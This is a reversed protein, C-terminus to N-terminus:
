LQQQLRQQRIKKAAIRQTCSNNGSALGAAITCGPLLKVNESCLLRISGHPSLLNIIHKAMKVYDM